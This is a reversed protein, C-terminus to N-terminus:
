SNKHLNPKKKGMFMFSFKPMFLSRKKKVSKGEDATTLDHKLDKQTEGNQKEVEEEKDSKSEKDMESKSEKAMEAKQLAVNLAEKQAVIESNLETLKNLSQTESEKAEDMETTAEAVRKSGAEEAEHARKSLEYYEELTITIGDKPDVTKMCRASESEHLASIAGLALKEQARAAEIEKETMALQGSLSSLANKAEDAAEKAKRFVLGAGEAFLKANETEKTVKQLRNPLEVLKELAEKENRRSNDLELRTRKLESELNVIAEAELEKQKRINTLVQKECELKETLTKAVAKLSTIEETTREINHNLEDLNKKAIGVGSQIDKRTFKESDEEGPMRGQLYVALEGKLNQLLGSATELKSKQDEALAIQQKVKELEEETQKLEHDVTLMEEDQQNAEQIRQEVAELHWAHIYEISEKTTILQLTLNEVEGELEKATSVAEEAKETASDRESIIIEYDKRTEELENTATILESAAAQHRAKAVELQTKAAVSSEDPIGQEVEQLLLQTLESDQKAQREETQARELNLKLELILRKTNELDKLAQEQEQEAMESKLKFVLIEEQAKELEQEIFKRRENTQARHAKWDAIVSFKSVVETVSEFPAATHIHGVKSGNRQLQKNSGDAHVNPSVDVMKRGSSSGPTVFTVPSYLDGPNAEPCSNSYKEWVKAEDM